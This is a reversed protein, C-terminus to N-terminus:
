MQAERSIEKLGEKTVHRNTGLIELGEPEAGFSGKARGKSIRSITNV